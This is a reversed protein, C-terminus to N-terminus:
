PFMGSEIHEYKEIDDMAERLDIPIPSSRLWNQCCILAKVMLSTLSSRFPDLVRGGTSFASESAVTSVPIALIDRAILFLIPYKLNHLKWWRLIDFASDSPDECGEILFREVESKSEMSNEEELHRKFQSTLIKQLDEENEDINVEEFCQNSSSTEVCLKNEHNLYHEYLRIFTDKVKMTMDNAKVSDYVQSFCFKVYRLKYQPDLM